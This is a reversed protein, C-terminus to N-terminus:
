PAPVLRIESSKREPYMPVGGGETASSARSEGLAARRSELGTSEPRTEGFPAAFNPMEESSDIDADREDDDAIAKAAHAAPYICYRQRVTTGFFTTDPYEFNFLFTDPQLGSKTNTPSGLIRM